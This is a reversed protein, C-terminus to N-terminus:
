PMAGLPENNKVNRWLPAIRGMRYSLEFRWMPMGERRAFLGAGLADLLWVQMGIEQVQDWRRRQVLTEGEEGTFKRERLSQMGWQAHLEPRIWGITHGTSVESLIESVSAHNYRGMQGLVGLRLWAWPECGFGLGALPMIATGGMDSAHNYPAEGLSVHLDVLFRPYKTSTPDAFCLTTLTAAFLGAFLVRRIKLLM